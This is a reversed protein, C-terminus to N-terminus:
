IVEDELDEMSDIEAARTGAASEDGTDLLENPLAEAPSGAQFGDAVELSGLHQEPIQTVPESKSDEREPMPPKAEQPDIQALEVPTSVREGATRSLIELMSRRDEMMMQFMRNTQEQGQANQRLLEEMNNQQAAVNHVLRDERTLELDTIIREAIEDYRQVAGPTKEADRILSTQNDVYRKGWIQYLDCAALYADGVGVLTPIGGAAQRRETIHARLKRLNTPIVSLDGHIFDSWQPFYHAQAVAVDREDALGQVPVVGNAFGGTRSLSGIEQAPYIPWYLLNRGHNVRGERARNPDLIKSGDERTAVHGGGVLVDEFRNKAPNWVNKQVFSKKYLARKEKEIFAAHVSMHGQYMPTIACRTLLKFPLCNSNRALKGGLRTAPDLKEESLIVDGIFLACLFGTQVVEQYVIERKANGLQLHPPIAQTPAAATGANENLM